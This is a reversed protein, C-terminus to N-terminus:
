GVASVSIEVPPKAPRKRCLSVRLVYDVMGVLATLVRRDGEALAALLSPHTRRHARDTIAVVVSHTLTEEGGEFALQEFLVSEGRVGFCPHGDEIKDLPPVVGM